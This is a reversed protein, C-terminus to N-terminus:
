TLDYSCYRMRCSSDYLMSLSSQSANSTEAKVVEFHISPTYTGGRVQRRIKLNNKKM